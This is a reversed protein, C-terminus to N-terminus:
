LQNIILFGYFIIMIAMNLLLLFPYDEFKNLVPPAVLEQDALLSLLCDPPPM